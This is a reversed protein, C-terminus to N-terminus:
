NVCSLYTTKNYGTNVINSANNDAAATLDNITSLRSILGNTVEPSTVNGRLALGYDRAKIEIGYSELSTLEIKAGIREPNTLTDTNFTEDDFTASIFPATTSGEYEFPYSFHTAKFGKTLFDAQLLLANTRGIAHMTTSPTEQEKNLTLKATHVIASLLSRTTKESGTQGSFILANGRRTRSVDDIGEIKKLDLLLPTKDLAEQISENSAHSAPITATILRHPGRNPTDIDIDSDVIFEPYGKLELYLQLLSTNLGM